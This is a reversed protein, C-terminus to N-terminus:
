RSLRTGDKFANETLEKMKLLDKLSLNYRKNIYAEMAGILDAMECLEMIAANQEHADLLEAIEEQIKSFEGLTGRPINAIHYGSM